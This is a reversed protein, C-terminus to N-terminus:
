PQFEKPNSGWNKVMMAICRKCSIESKLFNSVAGAPIPKGCYTTPRLRGCEHCSTLAHVTTFHNKGQYWAVGKLNTKM